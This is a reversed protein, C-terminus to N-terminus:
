FSLGGERAADALAKVRGHYIYGGRDFVVETVGHELARAAILKGVLKAAEVGAGNKLQGKLDTDLTSAQALTQGGVDDIIQAYINLNSRYVSLRPRGHSKKRLQTRVRRKRREFLLNANM